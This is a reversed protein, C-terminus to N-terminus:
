PLMFHILPSGGQRLWREYRKADELGDGAVAAEAPSRVLKADGLRRDAMLYTAELGPEARREELPLAVTRCQKRV